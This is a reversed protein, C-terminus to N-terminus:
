QTSEALRGRFGRLVEADGAFQVADDGLRGWLWLYVASPEGFVEAAADGEAGQGVAVSTADLRVTWWRGGATIRVTADVPYGTDGEEWWPGALNPYLLEDIGDLALETDLPTLVDHALEADVRHVVTEMAMRRFWFGSTRDAPSFTWVPRDPGAATLAEVIATVAEAYLEAADRAELEAPPWPDPLEGRRLIEVKHLYVQAVHRVVTEVTWGPCSPVAAAGGLRAVEALRAAEIEVQGLYYELALGM